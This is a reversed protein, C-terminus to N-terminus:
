MITEPLQKQEKINKSSRAQEPTAMHGVREGVDGVGKMLSNASVFTGEKSCLSPVKQNSIAHSRIGGEEVLGRQRAREGLFRLSEDASLFRDESWQGNPIGNMSQFRGDTIETFIENVRVQLEVLCM